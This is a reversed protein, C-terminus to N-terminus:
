ARHRRAPGGDPIRRAHKEGDAAIQRTERIMAQSAIMESVVLGVGARKVLRRFPMDTIGSLPALIVPESLAINEIEIGM